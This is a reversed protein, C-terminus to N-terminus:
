IKLLIKLGKIKKITLGKKSYLQRIAPCAWMVKDIEQFKTKLLNIKFQSREYYFM